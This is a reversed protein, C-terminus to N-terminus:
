RLLDRLLGDMRAAADRKGEDLVHTYLDSTTAMRTHGLQEMVARMDAGQLLLFRGDNRSDM